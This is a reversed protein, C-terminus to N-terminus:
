PRGIIGFRPVASRLYGPQPPGSVLACSVLKAGGRCLFAFPNDNTIQPSKVALIVNSVTGELKAKLCLAAFHMIEAGM